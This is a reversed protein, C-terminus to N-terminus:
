VRESLLLTSSRVVDRWRGSVPPDVLEGRVAVAVKVEGGRLFACTGAGAELLEYAAAAAFAAPRRARLELAQRILDLKAPPEAAGLATRRAEWDVLRRNDPDVLALFPLEDGAYLDPVGPCTLKLLTAGLAAADGREALRRAYSAVEEDALLGVGFRKAGAEWEHDQELWSTNVKAERLAKELYRELREPSLPWAGVVTQLILYAENPDRWGDLRPRVLAAWEEPASAICAIRARVDGSRKTDHTTTALLECPPRALNAAHFGEVSLSFRGPDGGVENLAVLRNWRYFATDEVGKAHVPPTTQQFRVVFSDHGREELRLIRALEDPLGASEIAKADEPAVRGADPEVYTRYVHFSALAAALDLEFPLRAALQAAEDAFTTRAEQLKAEHAHEAFPRRDGTLDEYLETLREEGAPDVFLATSDNLFEYGVTGEVPWDPRLREGPELIKEVWVHEVGVERLRELYRRPNALGDPHDIRVGQVLGDVVLEIVKAHMVEWVEPDEMRVGALEGVDFFRRHTGTRWDLDFFRARWLPDRWFPSEESAAMHNPVIDLLVGLGASCLERFEDEGGLEDSLRTPDVVDYGHTSGRRAQLSPSLYLHSVGLEQLYPVLARAERFGLGPGLQLRYTCRLDTV